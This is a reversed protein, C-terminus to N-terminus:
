TWAGLLFLQPGNITARDTATNGIPDANAGTLTNLGFHTLILFRSSIQAYALCRSRRMRMTFGQPDVDNDLNGDEAWVQHWTIFRIYKNGEENLKLSLAKYSRDEESDESQAYVSINLTLGVAIFATIMIKKM